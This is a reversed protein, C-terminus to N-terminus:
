GKADAVSGLCRLTRSSVLKHRSASGMEGQRFDIGHRTLHLWSPAAHLSGSPDSARRELTRLSWYVNSAFSANPKTDGAGKWWFFTEPLLPYYAGETEGKGETETETEGKGEGEGGGVGVGAVAGEDERTRESRYLKWGTLQLGIGM